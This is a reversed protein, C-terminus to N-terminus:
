NSVFDHICKFSTFQKDSAQEPGDKFFNNATMRRMVKWTPKKENM